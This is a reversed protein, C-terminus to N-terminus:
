QETGPVLRGNEIRAPQYTSYAPAGSFRALLLLSAIVLLLAVLALRLIIVGPWSTPQLFGSRTAALFLAYAAFPILFIGVETLVARMM